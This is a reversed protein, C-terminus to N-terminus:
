HQDGEALADLRPTDSHRQALEPVDHPEPQDEKVAALLRQLSGTINERYSREFSRLADVKGTLVGQEHELEAFLERRREETQRDLDTARATADNTMAEANVRAESEVREAKTRADTKIENARAEAEEIKRQAETQAENVLTTAQDTAMQLLRTVAPAAEESTTVTLHETGGVATVKESRSRDFEARVQELQARLRENEAELERVRQDDVQPAFAEDDGSESSSLREIQARLAEIERDKESLEAQHESGDGADGGGQQVSEVERRLRDREQEHEAFTLEVKDIFTDVDGVSYGTEGRRAMRFRIARVEDLTLSM